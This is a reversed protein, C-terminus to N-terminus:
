RTSSKTNRVLRWFRCVVFLLNLDSSSLAATAPIHTFWGETVHEMWCRCTCVKAPMWANTVLINAVLALVVWGYGEAMEVAM